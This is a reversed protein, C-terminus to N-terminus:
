QYGYDLTIGHADAIKKELARFTPLDYVTNKMILRKFSLPSFVDTTSDRSGIRIANTTGFNLKGRTAYQSITSYGNTQYYQKAGNVYIDCKCRGDIVFALLRDTSGSTNVQGHDRLATGAVEKFIFAPGTVTTDYHVFAMFENGTASNSFVLINIQSTGSGRTVAFFTLQSLATLGTTPITFYNSTGNLTIMDSANWQPNNVGTANRLGYQDTLATVNNGSRSIQGDIAVYHFLDASDSYSDAPTVVTPTETQIDGVAARKLFMKRTNTTVGDATLFAMLFNSNTPIDHYNFPIVFAEISGAYEPIMDGQDEWTDGEDYSRFLHPKNFAGEDILIVCELYDNVYALHKVANSQNTAADLIVYDAINLAKTEMSRNPTDIVHLLLNGTSQDGTILFAIEEPSVTATPIYGNDTDAGADYILFNADLITQTFYNASATDQVYPSGTLNEFVVFPNVNKHTRMMYYKEWDPGADNRQSFLLYWYDGVLQRYYPVSPYHRSGIGTPPAVPDPTTSIRVPTGWGEFGSSAKTVHMNYGVSGSLKQGRSWLIGNGSEDKLINCYSLQSGIKETLFEWKALSGKYIDIPTDHEREQFMFLNGANDIHFSPTTHTDALAQTNTVRYPRTIGNDEDYMLVYGQGLGESQYIGHYSLYTKGNHYMMRPTYLNHGGALDGALTQAGSFEVYDSEWSLHNGEEPADPNITRNQGM